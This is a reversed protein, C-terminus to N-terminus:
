PLEKIRVNRHRVAGPWPFNQIGVYGKLSRDATDNWDTILKGNLRVQYRKGTCTIAYANWEGPPKIPLEETPGSFSYISGTGKNSPKPDGIEIEHGQKVAIWPDNGPDPFRVFIGSDSKPGKEQLFEGRWEFNAFMKKRYVWLGMGGSGTAVGDEVKFSGPGCQTWDPLHERDFLRIFGEEDDGRAAGLGLVAALIWAARDM